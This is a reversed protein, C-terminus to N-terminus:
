AVINVLKGPVYIVRRPEASNLHELVRPSQMALTRADAETIEAPVQIKDRLKGNVQVVLEILDAKALEPEFVPWAQHHVSYGGGLMEWLEEALYPTSPALLLVLAQIAERWPDSSVVRGDRRFEALGNSFEILAAVMTNFQFGEIDRTVRDITSHTLRRIERETGDDIAQAPQVLASATDSVLGYVRRLFREMGTIGRSNWPGGQDWPGLYMLHLRLSDAGHKAVLADPAVQTGRSKSMKTGEEALIIGQNRLRVFPERHDVLGLDNLVKTFFRAYLLHLIAHEIGGTYLDVPTWKESAQRDFPASELTPSTYRFWYWSSDVFTDMTDTERRAAGGCVPCTTHLFSEHSVLPSQGTPTFEADLPLIVPLQDEPIPVIGCGDCYVVPIPTGWYRQRSILWDRLRFNVEATGKGESQLWEIIEPVAEPVARGDFRGSNVLLGPGAYAETMRDADLTEDVPQIVVRVPLDFARAFEFDRQDHAPVAMIAGTGYGMLVYDAIWIPIQEGTMPNSIYSGTFVGTKQNTEDTSMREIDSRRRSRDVYAEILDRQAETTLDAVMPHEPALVMFTAGWVTDPRTTFFELSEGSDLNFALRAGESRGIWNRQMTQVREPWDLDNLSELLEEAYDTIRFYWQELDRRFVDAGCRECTTGDIVQENALVTKDNPCWWVPGAKRYALGRELMQLFIWQNWHYYKPDCTSVERSWDIMAGMQDYQKRMQTINEFTWTAPHIGHRIAANEAPLGFSDFGMPFLVNFGNMRKFRAFVDPVAFAYWHGVHLTGSPYPYMTLSYWKPLPSEDDVRYLDDELWRQRWKQEIPVANYGGAATGTM